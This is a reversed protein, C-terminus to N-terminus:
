ASPGTAPYREGLLESGFARVRDCMRYAVGEEVWFHGASPIEHAVFHSSSANSLRGAWDRLRKVAVFVDSDGFAALTPCEVLKREALAKSSPDDSSTGRLGVDDGSSLATAPQNRKSFLSAITPSKFSMSALHSVPGQLPSVLLYASRRLRLDPLPELHKRDGDPRNALIVSPGDGPSAPKHGVKAKALLEHVGRRLKEEAEELSISRRFEHSKRPGNDDSFGVRMSLSRPSSPQRTELKAALVSSLTANQQEALHQARLRIEAATSGIEPSSFTSLIADLSPLQMTVMAGYSYGGMLLVPSQDSDVAEAPNPGSRENPSLAALSSAQRVFPDLFHTYYVIFGAFSM